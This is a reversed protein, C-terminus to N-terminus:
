DYKESTERHSAKSIAKNEVTTNGKEKDCIKKPKVHDLERLIWSARVINLISQRASNQSIESAIEGNQHWAEQGLHLLIDAM